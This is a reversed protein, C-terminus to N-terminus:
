DEKYMEGTKFNITVSYSKMDITDFNVTIQKENNFSTSKYSGLIRWLKLKNKKIYEKIKKASYSDILSWTKKDLKPKISKIIKAEFVIDEIKGKPLHGNKQQLKVKDIFKKTAEKSNKAVVPMTIKKSGIKCSGDFISESIYQQLRM